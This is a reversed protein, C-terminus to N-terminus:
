SRSRQKPRLAELMRHTEADDPYLKRLLWLAILVTLIKEPTGPFWLMALYTGAIGTLWDWRCAMGLALAIYSWGNTIMWAIGFCILFHPNLLFRGLVKLKEKM